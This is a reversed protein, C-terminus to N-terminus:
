RLGEAKMAAKVSERDLNRARFDRVPDPLDLRFKGAWLTTVFLYNDAVTPEDGLLWDGGDHIEVALRYKKELSKKAEAKGDDDGDGFLPHYTGHIENGVFTLWELMKFYAFGQPATGTEEAIYALVAPNETLLGNETEIVPVYGRPSIAYFDEGDETEHSSLDVKIAEFDLGSEELAIHAALSCAGPSYYLKM